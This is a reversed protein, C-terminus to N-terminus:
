KVDKLRFSKYYAFVLSSAAAVIAVIIGLGAGTNPLKSPVITKDEDPDVKPTVNDGNTKPTEEGSNTTDASKPEEAKGGEQTTQEVLKEILVFKINNEM